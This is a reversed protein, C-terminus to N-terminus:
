FLNLLALQNEMKLTRIYVLENICTDVYITKEIGKYREVGKIIYEKDNLQKLRITYYKEPIFANYIFGGIIVLSLYVILSTIFTKM